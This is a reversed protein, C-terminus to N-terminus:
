GEKRGDIGREKKITKREKKRGETKGGEVM